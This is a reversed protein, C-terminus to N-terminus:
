AKECDCLKASCACSCFPPKCSPSAMSMENNIVKATHIRRRQKNMRRSRYRLATHWSQYPLEHWWHGASRRGVTFAGTAECCRQLENSQIALALSFSVLIAVRWPQLSIRGALLILHQQAVACSFMSVAIFTLFTRGAGTSRPRSFNYHRLSRCSKM